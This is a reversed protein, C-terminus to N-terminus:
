SNELHMSICSLGPEGTIDEEKRWNQRVSYAEKWMGSAAYVNSLAIQMSSVQKGYELVKKAVMEGLEVNGHIHCAGLLAAWATNTSCGRSTGTEEVEALLDLAEDLRGFRGLMDILCTYHDERPIINYKRMMMKFYQLGEVVLGGHSCATLVATFTVENPHIGTEIMQQFMKIAYFCFGHVAYGTIISTWAVVNKELMSDFVKQAYQLKGSKSYMDVLATGVVVNYIDANTLKRVIKAHIQKGKELDALYSCAELGVVFTLSNGCVMFGETHCHMIALLHLGEIPRGSQVYGVMMSTWSIVDKQPMTGFLNRADEILGNYIYGSIMANGHSVDKGFMWRDYVKRAAGVDGCKAYMDILACGTYAGDEVSNSGSHLDALIIFLGHLQKGAKILSLKSCAHLLPVIVTYDWCLIEVGYKNGSICKLACDYRYNFGYGRIKILIFLLDGDIGDLVKEGCDVEGCYFYMNAIPKLSNVEFGRKIAYGHIQLGLVLDQVEACGMLVTAVTFEDPLYAESGTMERFLNLGVKAMGNQVYGSLMANWTVLNRDRMEDFVKQACDIAACKAYMDVFATGVFVDGSILGEKILRAHLTRGLRVQEPAAAIARAVSTFVYSNPRSSIVSSGNRHQRLMDSFIHLAKHPQHSRSYVSIISAWLATDRLHFPVQEFVRYVQSLSSGTSSSAYEAILKSAHVAAADLGLKILWAHRNM